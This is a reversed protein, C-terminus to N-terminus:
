RRGLLASALLSAAALDVVILGWGVSGDYLPGTRTSVDLTDILGVTLALVAAVATVPRLRDIAVTLLAVAGLALTVTGDRGASTGDAGFPGATAWEGLSGLVLAAGSALGWLVCAAGTVTRPAGPESM